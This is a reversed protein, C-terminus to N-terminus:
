EVVVDPRTLVQRYLLTLQKRNQRRVNVAVCGRRRDFGTNEKKPLVTHRVSAPLLRLRLSNTSTSDDKVVIVWALCVAISKHRLPLTLAQWCRCTSAERGEEVM